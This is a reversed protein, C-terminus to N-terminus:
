ADAVVKAPRGRRRTFSPDHKKIEAIQDEVFSISVSFDAALERRIALPRLRLAEQVEHRLRTYIPSRM